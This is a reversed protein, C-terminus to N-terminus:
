KRKVLSWKLVYRLPKMYLLWYFTYLVFLPNNISSHFLHEQTQRRECLIMSWKRIHSLHLKHV